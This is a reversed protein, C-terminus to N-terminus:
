AKARLENVRSAIKKAAAVAREVYEEDSIDDYFPKGDTKASRCIELMVTIDKGSAAIYKAVEEFDINGDFPLLHDDADKVARNDHIHLAGLRQSFYEMHKVNDTYCNEHGTDWCFVPFDYRDMFYKLNELYRLNELAVKVGKEKAYCFLKEYRAVGKESIEPMPRGSSVHVITTPIGYKACKDVSDFLRALMADGKEDDDSWMGNIGHFPAHLTEMTIGNETYIKMVKDFDETESGIFSKDIGNKKLLSAVKEHSIEGFISMGIKM